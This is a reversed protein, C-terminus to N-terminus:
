GMLDPGCRVMDKLTVLRNSFIRSPRRKTGDEGPTVAAEIMTNMAFCTTNVFMDKIRRKYNSPLADKGESRAAIKKSSATM